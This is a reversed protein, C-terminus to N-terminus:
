SRSPVEMMSDTTSLDTTRNCDQESPMRGTYLALNRRFPAMEAVTAVKEVSVEACRQIQEHEKRSM